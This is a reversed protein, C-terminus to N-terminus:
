EISIPQLRNHVLLASDILALQQATGIIIVKYDNYTTRFHKHLEANLKTGFSSYSYTDLNDIFIIAIKSSNHVAKAHAQLFLSSLNDANHQTITIVPIGYKSALATVIQAKNKTTGYLLFGYPIQAFPNPKDQAMQAQAKGILQQLAKTIQAVSGTTHAFAPISILSFLAILLYKKM